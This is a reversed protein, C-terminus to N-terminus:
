LVSDYLVNYFWFFNPEELCLIGFANKHERESFIHQVSSGVPGVYRDLLNLIPTRVVDLLMMSILDLDSILAM